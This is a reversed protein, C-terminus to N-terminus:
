IDEIRSDSPKTPSDPDMEPIGQYYDKLEYNDTLPYYRKSGRYLLQKSELLKMYTFLIVAKLINNLILCFIVLYNFKASDGFEYGYGWWLDYIFSLVLLLCLLFLIMEMM